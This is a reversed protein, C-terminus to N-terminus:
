ASVLEPKSDLTSLLNIMDEAQQTMQAITPYIMAGQERLEPYGGTDFRSVFERIGGSVARVGTRVETTEDSVLVPNAYNTIRYGKAAREVWQIGRGTVTIQLVKGKTRLFNAIPCRYSEGPEGTIGEELFLEAIADASMGDLKTVWQDVPTPLNFM